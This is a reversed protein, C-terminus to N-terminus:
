DIQEFHSADMTVLLVTDCTRWGRAKKRQLTKPSPGLVQLEPHATM